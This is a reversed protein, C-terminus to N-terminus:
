EIFFLKSNSKILEGFRNYSVTKPFDQQMHKQIYYIYYLKFTRFGSLQFSIVITIIESDSITPKKKSPKGLLFLKTFKQFGTCFEDVICFIDTIENFNIMSVNTLHKFTIFNVM